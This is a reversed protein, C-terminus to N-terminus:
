LVLLAELMLTDADDLEVLDVPGAAVIPVVDDHILHRLAGDECVILKQQLRVTCALCLAPAGAALAQSTVRQKDRSTVDQDVVVVRWEPTKVRDYYVATPQKSRIVASCRVCAAVVVGFEPGDDHPSLDVESSSPFAELIDEITFDVVPDAPIRFLEDAAGVLQTRTLVRVDVAREDREHRARAYRVIGRQDADSRSESLARDLAVDAKVGERRCLHEAVVLLELDVTDSVPRLPRGQAWATALVAQAAPSFQGLVPHARVSHLAAPVSV